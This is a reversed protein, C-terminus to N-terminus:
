LTYTREPNRIAMVHCPCRRSVQEVTSGYHTQESASAGVAGMVVLDVGNERVYRLIEVFPTGARVEWNVDQLGNLKGMYRAKLDALLKEILEPTVDVVEGEPAGEDTETPSYRMTTHPCHLVHLKAGHRQALDVAHYLAIEADESFDTCYLINKYAIM